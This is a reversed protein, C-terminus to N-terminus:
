RATGKGTKPNYTAMRLDNVGPKLLAKRIVKQISEKKALGKAVQVIIKKM